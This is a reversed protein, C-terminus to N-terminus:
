GKWTPFIGGDQWTPLAKWFSSLMRLILNLKSRKDSFYTSCSILSKALILHSSSRFMENKALARRLAPLDKETALARLRWSSAFDYPTHEALAQRFSMGPVPGEIAESCAAAVQPDDSKVLKAIVRSKGLRYALRLASRVAATKFTTGISRAALVEQLWDLDKETGRVAIAYLAFLRRWRERSKWMNRVESVRMRQGLKLAVAEFVRIQSGRRALEAVEDVHDLTLLKILAQVAAEAVEGRGVRTINMLLPVDRPASLKSIVEELERGLRAGRFRKLVEELSVNAGSRLLLRYANRQYEASGEKEAAGSMLARVWEIVKERPWLRLWYHVPRGEILHSDLLLKTEDETCLIKNRHKYVRLHEALTLAAGTDAFAAARASLLDKYKKAEREDASVLEVLITKALFDHVIEHQGDIARVLRLDALVGLLREVQERSQLTETAIEEATKQAKTGYSSVLSILVERGNREDRGLYRLQSLLFDSIIKRSAGAAEYARETYDGGDAVKSIVMQLFPPYIGAYGALLSEGALDEIIRRTLRKADGGGGETLSIGLAELNKLLAEEGGAKDLPGLYLRPLGDASGSIQQWVPGLLSEVDGRYCILFKLNSESSTNLDILSRTIQELEGTAKLGLVDEFQDIIIITQTPHHATAAARVV